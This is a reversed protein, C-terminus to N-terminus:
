AAYLIRGKSRITREFSVPLRARSEFEARTYVQVDIPVPIDGLALYARADRSFADQPSEDVIVLLDLDSHAKPTGYAYSGFLYIAVPSFEARLRTVAAELNRDLQEDTLIPM